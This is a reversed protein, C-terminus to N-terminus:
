REKACLDPAKEGAPLVSLWLWYTNGHAEAKFHMGRCIMLRDPAALRGKPPFEILPPLWPANPQIWASM